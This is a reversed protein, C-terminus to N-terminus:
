INKPPGLHGLTSTQTHLHTLSHSSDRFPIFFSYFNFVLKTDVQKYTQTHHTTHTEILIYIHTHTYIYIYIHTYAYIHTHTHRYTHIDNHHTHYHTQWYESQNLSVNALSSNRIPLVCYFFKRVFLTPMKDSKLTLFILYGSVFILQPENKM